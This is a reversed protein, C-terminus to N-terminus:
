ASWWLCDQMRKFLVLDSQLLQLDSSSTAKHFSAGPVGARVGCVHGLRLITALYFIALGPTFM